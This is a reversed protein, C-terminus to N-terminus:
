GRETWLAPYSNLANIAGGSHYYGFIRVSCATISYSNFKVCGHCDIDSEAM